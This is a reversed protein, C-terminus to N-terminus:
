KGAACEAVEPPVGRAVQELKRQARDVVSGYERRVFQVTPVLEFGYNRQQFAVMRSGFVDPPYRKRAIAAVQQWSKVAGEQDGARWLADGLHDLTAISPSNPRIRLAQRFISVAGPGAADDRFRGQRYRLFGITDLVAPDDPRASAAREARSVAADSLEGRELEAYALSNLVDAEDPEIREASELLLRADDARGLLTFLEATRLLARVMPQSPAASEGRGADAWPAAGAQILGDLSREVESAGAGAGIRLAVAATAIRARVEPAIRPQACLAEALEAAAFPDDARKTLGGLAEICADSESNLMPRAREALGREFAALEEPSSEAALFVKNAELLDAPSMRDMRAVLQTLLIRLAPARSPEADAIRTMAALVRRAALTPLRGDGAQAIRGIRALADDHAARDCDALVLLSQTEPTDPRSEIAGIRASRALERPAGCIADFRASFPASPIETVEAAAVAAAVRRRDPLAPSEGLVVGCWRRWGAPPQPGSAIRVLAGIARQAPDLEEMLAYAEAALPLRMSEAEMGFSRLAAVANACPPWDPLVGTAGPVAAVVEARMGWAESGLADAGAAIERVTAAATARLTPDELSAVAGCLRAVRDRGDFRLAEDARARATPMEQLAYWALAMTRDTSGDDRRAVEDVRGLLTADLLDVAALADAVRLVKSSPMQTRADAALRQAEEAFGFRGHIRSVLAAAGPSDGRQALEALLPDVAVGCALLATAVADLENARWHAVYCALSVLREPRVRAIHAFSLTLATRDIPAGLDSVDLWADDLPQTHRAPDLAAAVLAHRMAGAADRQGDLRGLAETRADGSARVAAHVARWLMADNTPQRLWRPLADRLVADAGDAEERLADARLAALIEIADVAGEPNGPATSLEALARLADGGRGLGALADARLLGLMRLRESAGEGGAQARAAMAADLAELAARPAGLRLAAVAAQEELEGPETTLPVLAGRRSLAGDGVFWSLSALASAPDGEGAARLGDLAVVFPNAADIARIRGIVEAVARPRGERLRVLLALELPEANAPFEKAAADCALLAVDTDDQELLEAIRAIRTRLGPAPAPQNARALPARFAAIPEAVRPATPNPTAVAARLLLPAAERLTVAEPGATPARPSEGVPSTGTRSSACSALTAGCALVAIATALATTFHRAYDFGSYQIRQM